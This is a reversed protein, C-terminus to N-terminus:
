FARVSRRPTWSTQCRYGAPRRPCLRRTLHTRGCGSARAGGAPPAPRATRRTFNLALTAFALGIVPWPHDGAQDGDDLAPGVLYMLPAASKHMIIVDGAKTPMLGLM